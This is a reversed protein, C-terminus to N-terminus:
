SDAVWVLATLCQAQVPYPFRCQPCKWWWTMFDPEQCPRFSVHADAMKAVLWPTQWLDGAGRAEELHEQMVPAPFVFSSPVVDM